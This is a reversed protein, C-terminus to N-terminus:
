DKKKKKNQKDDREVKNGNEDVEKPGIDFANQLDSTAKEAFGQFADVGPVLNRTTRGQNKKEWASLTWANMKGSEITDDITKYFDPENVPLSREFAQTAEAALSLPTSYTGDGSRISLRVLGGGSAKAKEMAAEFDTDTDVKVGDVAVVRDGINLGLAEAQGGPKIWTITLTITDRRWGMASDTSFTLTRELSRQPSFGYQDLRELVENVGDEIGSTLSLRRGEAIVEFSPLEKVLRVEILEPGYTFEKCVRAFNCDPFADALESLRSLADTDGMMSMYLVVMVVGKPRDERSFASTSALNLLQSESELNTIRQIESMRNNRQVASLLCKKEKFVNRGGWFSACQILRLLFLIVPLARHTMELFEQLTERVQRIKM